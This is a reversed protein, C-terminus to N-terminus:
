PTFILCITDVPARGSDLHAGCQFDRWRWQEDKRGTSSVPHDGFSSDLPLFSSPSRQITVAADFFSSYAM